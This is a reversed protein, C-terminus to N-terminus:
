KLALANGVPTNSKTLPSEYYLAGNPKLCSFINTYNPMEQYCHSCFWYIKGSRIHRLLANSCCPCNSNFM